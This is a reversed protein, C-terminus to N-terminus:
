GDSNNLFFEGIDDIRHENLGDIMADIVIQTAANKSLDTSATMVAQEPRSGKM